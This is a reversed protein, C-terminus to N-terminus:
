IPSSEITEHIVLIIVVGDEKEIQVDTREYAARIQPVLSFLNTQQSSQSTWVLIM